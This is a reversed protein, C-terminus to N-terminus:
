ASPAAADDALHDSSPGDWGIAPSGQGEDRADLFVPAEPKGYIFSDLAVSVGGQTMRGALRDFRLATDIVILLTVLLYLSNTALPWAIYSPVPVWIGTAAPIIGLQAAALQAVNCLLLGVVIVIGAGIAVAVVTGLWIGITLSMAKTATSCVLSTRVGVAALFAGGVFVGLGWGVADRVPVAGAGASLTWSFLAAIILWRIAYLSGFLKGRVIEGGELPSTLLADWTGRERESSISVAARLGIAGQILWAIFGGTGGILLDLQLRAWTAWEIEHRYSVDWAIVSAMAVSVALMSAVLFIGAWRGFRGLTAAREIFLEKWVMPRKEDVPPVFGWRAHGKRGREDGTQALCSARLRWSAIATGAVGLVIWLGASTLAGSPSAGEILSELGIYPNFYTIWDFAARSLGFSSSLPTLLLFLDLLYVALLADRGRRSLTSAAAAIGVGGFGVAAPLVLFVIISAASFGALSATFVLAPVGALVIMGLQALKGALRGTVIERASVRTTMLLALSGREKEGALSGAMLAPGFVLAITLLMGEVLTIGIWLEWYPRYNAEIQENMWWAWLALAMVSLIASAALARVLILWGRALARRCEAGALPGVLPSVFNVM